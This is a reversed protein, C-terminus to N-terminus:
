IGCADVDFMGAAVPLGESLGTEKSAEKTVRGCIEAFYKLPSLKDFIEEM